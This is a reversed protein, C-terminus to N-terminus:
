LNPLRKHLGFDEIGSVSNVACRERKRKAKKKVERPPGFCHELNETEVSKELVALDEGLLGRTDTFEQLLSVDL